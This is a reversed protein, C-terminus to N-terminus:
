ALQVKSKDYDGAEHIAWKRAKEVEAQFSVLTKTANFRRYTDLEMRAQELRLIASLLVKRDNAVQARSAYGKAAM